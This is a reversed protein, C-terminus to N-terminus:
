ANLAGISTGCLIDLPVDRGLDKSVEEVIHEVVGVEYAGRAAGGALVLAVRPAGSPRSM